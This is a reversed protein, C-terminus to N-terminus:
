LLLSPGQGLLRREQCKSFVQSVKRSVGPVKSICVAELWSKAATKRAPSMLVLTLVWRATGPGVWVLSRGLALHQWRSAGAPRPFQVLLHKMWLGAPSLATWNWNWTALCVLLCTCSACAGDKMRWGSGTRSPLLSRLLECGSDESSPLLPFFSVLLWLGQTGAEARVNPM